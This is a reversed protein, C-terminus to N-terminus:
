VIDARILVFGHSRMVDVSAAVFDDIHLRKTQLEEGSKCLMEALQPVKNSDV